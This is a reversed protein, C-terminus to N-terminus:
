RIRPSSGAFTMLITVVTENIRRGARRCSPMIPLSVRFTTGKGQGDSWVTVTGGHAEALYKVISLGLGLGKHERAKSGDAQRFPEFVHPLFVADIGEGSDRVEIVAQSDSRTLRVLITGGRKTFKVANTLLNWVVQQLRDPDGAIRIGADLDSTITVGKAAASLRVSDIGSCVPDALDITRCSLRLKGTLIRSVDLLDEILTAQAKACRQIVNLGDNLLEPDPSDARLISAWGLIATLPTRLEHSVTAIFEDKIRNAEEARERAARQARSTRTVQVFTLLLLIAAITTTIVIM